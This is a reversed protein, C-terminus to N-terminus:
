TYLEISNENSVDLFPVNAAGWLGIVWIGGSNEKTDDHIQIVKLILIFQIKCYIRKPIQSRTSDEIRRGLKKNQLIEFGYFTALIISHGAICGQPLNCM